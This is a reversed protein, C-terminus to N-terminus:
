GMGDVANSTCGDIQVAPDYFPPYPLRGRMLADSPKAKRGKKNRPFKDLLGVKRTFFLFFTPSAVCGENVSDTQPKESSHVLSPLCARAQNRKKEVPAPLNGHWCQPRFRRPLSQLNSSRLFLLLRISM